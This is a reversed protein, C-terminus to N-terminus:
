FHIYVSLSRSVDVFPKIEFYFDKRVLKYYNMAIKVLKSQKRM